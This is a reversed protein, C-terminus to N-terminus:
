IVSWLEAAALGWLLGISFGLGLYDLRGLPEDREEFDGSPLSAAEQTRHCVPWCRSYEYASKM